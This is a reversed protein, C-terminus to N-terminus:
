FYRFCVMHEYNAILRRTILARTVENGPALIIKDFSLTVCAKPAPTRRSLEDIYLGPRSAGGGGRGRPDKPGRGNWMRRRRLCRWIGLMKIKSIVLRFSVFNFTKMKTTINKKRKEKVDKIM